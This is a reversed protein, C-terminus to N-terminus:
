QKRSAHIQVPIKAALIKPLMKIKRARVESILDKNLYHSTVLISRKLNLQNILDMGNIDQNLLEYDTLLYIDSKLNEPHSRIYQLAKEGQTFHKVQTHAIESFRLDWALHVSPDDDVVVIIDWPHFVL